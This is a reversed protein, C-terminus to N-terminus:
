GRCMRPSRCTRVQMAIQMDEGTYAGPSNAERMVTNLMNYVMGYPGHDKLWWNIALNYGGDAQHDWSYVDHWTYRVHV